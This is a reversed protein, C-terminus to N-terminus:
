ICGFKHPKGISSFFILNPHGLIFNNIQILHHFKQYVFLFFCLTKANKLFQEQLYVSIENSSKITHEIKLYLIHHQKWQTKLLLTINIQNVLIIVQFKFSTNAIQNPDVFLLFTIGHLYFEFINMRCLYFQCYIILKLPCFMLFIYQVYINKVPCM